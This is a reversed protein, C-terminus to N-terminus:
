GCLADCGVSEIGGGLDVSESAGSEKCSGPIGRVLDASKGSTYIPGGFRARPRGSAAFLFGLCDFARFGTRGPAGGNIHAGSTRDCYWYWCGWAAGGVGKIVNSDASDPPFSM